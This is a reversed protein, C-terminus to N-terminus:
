GFTWSSFEDGVWVEAEGAAILYYHDAETQERVVVGGAPVTQEALHALVEEHAEPPLAGFLAARALVERLDARDRVPPTM